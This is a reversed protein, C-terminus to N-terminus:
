NGVFLTLEWFSEGGAGVFLISKSNIVKVRLSKTVVNATAGAARPRLTGAIAWRSDAPDSVSTGPM